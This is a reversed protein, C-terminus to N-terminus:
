AKIRFSVFNFSYCLRLVTIHNFYIYQAPSFTNNYIVNLMYFANNRIRYILIKCIINCKEMKLVHKMNMIYCKLGSYANLCFFYQILVFPDTDGTDAIGIFSKDAICFYRYRRYMYRSGAWYQFLYCRLCPFIISCIREKCM